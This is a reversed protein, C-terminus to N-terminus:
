KRRPKVAAPAPSSSAPTKTRQKILDDIHQWFNPSQGRFIKVPQTVAEGIPRNHEDYTRVVIQAVVEECRAHQKM